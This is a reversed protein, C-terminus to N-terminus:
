LRQMVVDKWVSQEQVKQEFETMGGTLRAAERLVQPVWEMRPRGVRRVYRNTAPELTQPIFSAVRMPSDEPSRAVRGLLLLQRKLLQTSAAEVQARELVVKNPVRSLFAPAIGLIQRLCRCHFGDLRRKDAKTFAICPLGYFLKSEILSRFIELKRDRNLNSHKWVKQLTRFDGRMMGMRRGLEVCSGGQNSLIAGLYEMSSSPHIAVGQPTTVEAQTGVQLLQFKGHHLELGYQKGCTAVVDLFESLHHANVGMLLTDDAYVLDLLSGMKYADKAALSFNSIADHMMVTMLAVFLLPSLTCGQSIGSKQPRTSSCQGCDEVFFNRSTMMSHILAVYSPPLGMRRLADSLAEVHVSDFAKKWDLALLSIQGARQACALEIHRRAVYMADETSRKCRFGYQSQWLRADLGADLFRQKLMAAFVKYAVPVMCIPRYNNCDGPDGKKFILAVRALLWDQPVEGQLLCENCLDLFDQMADGAEAAMAKFAEIPADGKRISKGSALSFIAKRLEKHTFLAESTPLPPCIPPLRDPVLTAPRVCWQVKELHDAFTSAREETGVSRGECNQLRTQQPARPKRIKRIAKWDGTAAVDNLWASKDRRASRKIDRRLTKELPWDDACRAANREDILALTGSGIWPKKGKRTEYPICKSAAGTIAERMSKWHSDMPADMSSATASSIGELFANRTYPIKLSAWDRKLERGPQSATCINVRVAAIVPFHHSAIAGSRDSTLSMVDLEEGSQVLLLDLMSFGASCIQSMPSVGPEHFTVKQHPPADVFTNAVVMSRSTCFELLLDRNPVEVRHRAEVGFGYPGLIDEEGPHRSGLRANFDGFVLKKGNVPIQQLHSDLSEYFEFREPLDKLNHPAYVSLLACCGGAVRLRLSAIRNSFPTFGIVYKSARPSLIFGVGAWERSSMSSGGSLYITYGHASFTDSLKKRTEQICMIHINNDRM